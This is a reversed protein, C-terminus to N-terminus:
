QIQTLAECRDVERLSVIGILAVEEQRELTIYALLNPTAENDRGKTPQKACQHLWSNIVTIYCM